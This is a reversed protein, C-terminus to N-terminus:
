RRWRDHRDRGRWHNDRDYHRPGFYQRPPAYNRFGFGYGYGRAYPPRWWYGRHWYRHPGAWYWYGDVWTYGPGPCPPAYLAVPPPAGVGFGVFVRTGAFLTSGALLLLVLLNTKMHASGSRSFASRKGFDLRRIKLSKGNPIQRRSQGLVV